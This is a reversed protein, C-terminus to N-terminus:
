MVAALDAQREALMAQARWIQLRRGIYWALAQLDQADSIFVATIKTGTLDQPRGDFTFSVLDWKRATLVM